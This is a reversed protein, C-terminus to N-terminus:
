GAKATQAALIHIGMQSARLPQLAKM